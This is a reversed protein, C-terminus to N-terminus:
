AEGEQEQPRRPNTKIQAALDLIREVSPPGLRLECPGGAEKALTMVIEVSELAQAMTVTYSQTEPM